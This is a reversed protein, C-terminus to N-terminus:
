LYPDQRSLHNQVYDRISEDLPDFDKQYGALRLKKLDAQTFYQYRDRINEPMPIYRIDTKKKMAKFVAKALDNFSRAQGTGLNFIGSRERHEYFYYMVKLVDKIYVFDRKQEGHRIGTKHSRFLQLFGKKRIQQYAKCVVSRMDDKHYENPGFVNFYKFGTLKNQLSNKLIWLDFLHKSYGYMNMPLLKGTDADADSYGQSGDGYTAASSAYILKVDNKLCWEAIRRSYIFNNEMIYDANTETTSSCAGMHVITDPKPLKGAELLDLFRDKDIYDSFTKKNLNKWKDRCRLKDVIIIDTIKETNLKWLFASGIFGAGGTLILM